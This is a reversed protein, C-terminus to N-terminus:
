LVTVEHRLAAGLSMFYLQQQEHQQLEPVASIDLLSELDLIEIPMYLNAALYAQLGTGAEGLPSLVLKAVTIFQYQRDFHDFSRQLELTTRDYCAAKQDADAQRLQALSVDFRRSLYLEGAFTITLLGGDQDFSLFAVGRGEPELLESFNRQAMEPIDIVNLPIKVQEFLAQRQRIFQDHAAVAYMSHTRAPANKDAPIDLVDIAADDIHFDLMDKLRWRVATRLEEPPVNPADVTLLQYDGSNILHTCRYREAHVQKALNELAAPASLMDAPHRALLKVQPKADQARVIHALYVGDDRICFSLWGAAVKTKAFLGM